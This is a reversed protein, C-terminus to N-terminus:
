HVPLSITGSRTAWVFLMPGFIATKKYLTENGAAARFWLALNALM